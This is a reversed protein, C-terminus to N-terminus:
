WCENASVKTEGFRRQVFVMKLWTCKRYNKQKQIMIIFAHNMVLLSIFFAGLDNKRLDKWLNEASSYECRSKITQSSIRCGDLVFKGYSSIITFFQIYQRRVLRWPVSSRNTYRVHTMKLQYDFLM